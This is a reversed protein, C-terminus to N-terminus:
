HDRLFVLNSPTSDNMSIMYGEADFHVLEKPESIQNELIFRTMMGRAKKAYFSMVRYIGGANRDKFTVDVFQNKLKKRNIVNSYETSALNVVPGDGFEAKVQATIIDTWFHYLDKRRGVKLATGMELRYPEIADQPRLWGYLGSLIRLHDQAFSMAQENLTEANLGLYADGNFLKVAVYHANEKNAGWQQNRQWNLEALEKSIGQLAMLKKVSYRKVAENVKVAENFFIPTKSETAVIPNEEKLRKAPSLLILM